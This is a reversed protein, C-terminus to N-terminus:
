QNLQQKIDQITQQGVELPYYILLSNYAPDPGVEEFTKQVAQKLQQKEILFHQLLRIITEDTYSAIVPENYGVYVKAGKETFAKAMSAYQLGNCGMAIIIANNFTGKMSSRVFNENIGFYTPGGETLRILAIQDTLQEYVYKQSSYPESSFFFISTGGGKIFGSHVRLIILGYNHTPLNRYFEVTVNEGSYYDVTYGAQELINTAKEIFTQNPCTLSLHDVIAAEPESTSSGSHLTISPQNLFSNVIFGSVLVILVLIAVMIAQDIREERKRKERIRHKYGRPLKKAKM